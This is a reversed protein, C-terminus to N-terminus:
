FKALDSRLVGQFELKEKLFKMKGSYEACETGFFKSNKLRKPGLNKSNAERRQASSGGLISQNTNYLTITLILAISKPGTAFSSFNQVNVRTSIVLGNFTLM